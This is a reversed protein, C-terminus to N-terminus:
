KPSIARPFAAFFTITDENPSDGHNFPQVYLFQFIFKV